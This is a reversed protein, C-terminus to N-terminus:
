CILLIAYRSTAMIDRLSTAAEVERAHGLWPLSHLSLISGQEKLSQSQKWHILNGIESWDDLRLLILEDDVWNMSNVDENVKVFVMM